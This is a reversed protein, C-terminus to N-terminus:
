PGVKLKKDRFVCALLKCESSRTLSLTRRVSYRSLEFAVGECM